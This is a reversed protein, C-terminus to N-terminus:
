QKESTKTTKVDNQWGSIIRVSLIDIFITSKPITLYMQLMEEGGKKNQHFCKEQGSGCM